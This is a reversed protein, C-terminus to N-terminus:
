VFEDDEAGGAGGAPAEGGVVSLFRQHAAEDIFAAKHTEDYAYGAKAADGPRLAYTGVVVNKQRPIFVTLQEDPAMKEAELRDLVAKAGFDDFTVPWALNEDGLLDAVSKTQRSEYSQNEIKVTIVQGALAEPDVNVQAQGDGTVWIAGSALLLYKGAAWLPSGDKYKSRPHHMFSGGNELTDTVCALTFDQRDITVAGGGEADGVLFVPRVKFFKVGKSDYYGTDAEKLTAQYYGPELLRYSNSKVGEEINAIEDASLNLNMTLNTM